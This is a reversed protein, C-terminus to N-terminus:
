FSLFNQLPFRIAGYKSIHCHFIGLSFFKTYIHFFFRCHFIIIHFFSKFVKEAVWCMNIITIFFARSCFAKYLFYTMLYYLINILMFWKLFLFLSNFVFNMVSSCYSSLLFLNKKFFFLPYTHTWLHKERSYSYLYLFHYKCFVWMISFINKIPVIQYLLISVIPLRM